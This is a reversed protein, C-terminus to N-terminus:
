NFSSNLQFKRYTVRISMCGSLLLLACRSFFTSTVLHSCHLYYIKQKRESYFNHMKKTENRQISSSGYGFFTSAFRYVVQKFPRHQIDSLKISPLWYKCFLLDTSLFALCLVEVFKLFENINKFIEYVFHCLLM